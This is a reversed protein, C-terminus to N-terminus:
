RVGDGSRSSHVTEVSKRIWVFNLLPAMLATRQGKNDNNAQHASEASGTPGGMEITWPQADVPIGYENSLSMAPAVM